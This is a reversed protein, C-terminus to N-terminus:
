IKKWKKFEVHARLGSFVHSKIIDYLEKITLGNQIIENIDKGPLTDPLLCINFNNNIFGGITRVLEKNRPQIDPLLILKQKDFVTAAYALNSDATAICNPLFLSDLPGEVVLIPKTIDIREMGYIKPDDTIKVTIYRIDNDSLSRGQIAILKNDSNFFPIIIRPKRVAVNSDSFRKDSVSEVYDKFNDTYYIYKWAYKPIQRNSIYIKAIHTASLANITPLDLKSKDIITNFIPINTKFQTELSVPSTFKNYNVSDKYAELTYEKALFPDLNELFKRLSLGKGCNHCAFFYRDKKAYIYGRTKVLNKQSDGCFPCRFNFLDSNIRRFQSLKPSILLTYTRDNYISM